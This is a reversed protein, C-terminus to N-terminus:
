RDRGPFWPTSEFTEERRAKRKEESKIEKKVERKVVSKTENPERSPREDQDESDPSSRVARYLKWMAPLNKVYPGYQEILPKMQEAAVMVQRAQELWNGTSKPSATPISPITPVSRRPPYPYYPRRGFNPAHRHM